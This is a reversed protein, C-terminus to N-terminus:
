RSQKNASDVDDITKCLYLDIDDNGDTDKENTVIWKGDKRELMRLKPQRVQGGELVRQLLKRNDMKSPMTDLLAKLQKTQETVVTEIDRPQQKPLVYALLREFMKLREYPKLTDFDKELKERKSNLLYEVFEKLNQNDKNAAGKPRGKPNGSKGKEFM